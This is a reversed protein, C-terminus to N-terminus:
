VAVAYNLCANDGIAFSLCKHDAACRASCVSFMAQDNGQQDYYAENGTDYGLAGCVQTRQVLVRKSPSNIQLASVLPLIALATLFSVM